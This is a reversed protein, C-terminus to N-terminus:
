WGKQVSWGEYSGRREQGLCKEGFFNMEHEIIDGRRGCGSCSDGVFGVFSSLIDRWCLLSNARCLNSSFCRAVANSAKVSVRVSIAGVVCGSGV